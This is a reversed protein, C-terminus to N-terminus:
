DRHQVAQTLRQGHHGLLPEVVNERAMMPQRIAHAGGYPCPSELEAGLRRLPVRVGHTGDHDRLARVAGVHDVDREPAVVRGEPGPEGPHRSLQEPDAVETVQVLSRFLTTYPFLTSRPPRRIM